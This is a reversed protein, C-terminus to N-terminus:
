RCFIATSNLLGAASPSRCLAASYSSIATDQVPQLLAIMMLFGSIEETEKQGTILPPQVAM